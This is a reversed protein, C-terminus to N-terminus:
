NSISEVSWDADGSIGYSEGAELEEWAMTEAQEESEAEVYITVYSVRKLEVAFNKM